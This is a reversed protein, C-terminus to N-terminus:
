VGVVRERERERERERVMLLFFLSVLLGLM